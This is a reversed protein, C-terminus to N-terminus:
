CGACDRVGIQLGESFALESDSVLNEREREREREAKKQRKKLIKPIEVIVFM